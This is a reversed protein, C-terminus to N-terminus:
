ESEIVSWHEQACVYAKGRSFPMVTDYRFPVVERGLTDIYGWYGKYQVGAKGEAFREHAGDFIFPIVTSGTKDIYGYQKKMRADMLNYQAALARNHYFDHIEVLSLSFPIAFGGKTNFVGYENQHHVVALDNSYDRIYDYQPAVVERGERDLVGYGAEARVVTMQSCDNGIHLYEVAPNYLQKTNRLMFRNNRGTVIWEDRHHFYLTDYIAEMLVSAQRDLLGYRGNQRFLFTSPTCVAVSDFQLPVVPANDGERFLGMKNGKRVAYYDESTHMVRDYAVPVAERGYRNVAGWLGDKGVFYAHYDPDPQLTDFRQSSLVNGNASFTAFLTSNDSTVTFFPLNLHNYGSEIRDHQPPLVWRGKKNIIGWKGNEQVVGLGNVFPRAQSFFTRTLLLGYEDIYAYGKGPIHVCGQPYDRTDIGGNYLASRERVQNPTYPKYFHLLTNKSFPSLWPLRLLLDCPGTWVFPLLFLTLVGVLVSGPIVLGYKRWKKM